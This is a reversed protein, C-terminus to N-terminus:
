TKALQANATECTVYIKDKKNCNCIKNYSRIGEVLGEIIEKM